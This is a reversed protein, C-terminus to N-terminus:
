STKPGRCLNRYIRLDGEVVFIVRRGTLLMRSRQEKLRGDCMSAVLDSATKREAIWGTCTGEYDCQVDGVRLSEVLHGDSRDNFLAILARERIGVWVTANVLANAM